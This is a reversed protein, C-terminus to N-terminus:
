TNQSWIADYIDELAKKDTQGHGCIGCEKCKCFYSNESIKYTNLQNYKCQTCIITATVPFAEPNEALQASYSNKLKAAHNNRNEREKNTTYIDANLVAIKERVETREAITLQSLHWDPFYESRPGLLSDRDTGQGYRWGAAVEEPEIYPLPAEYDLYNDM